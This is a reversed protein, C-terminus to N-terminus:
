SGPSSGAASLAEQRKTDAEALARDNEDGTPLYAAQAMAITVLLVTLLNLGLSYFHWRVFTARAAKAAHVDDTRPPSHSVMADFTQNRPERLENVKRELWGGLAVTALAALLIGARLRHVRAAGARRWALATAGALLGCVAQIGFYWQFLPELAVGAARTGQEKRLPEPFADRDPSPGDYAKWLPFWAERPAEAAVRGFTNFLNVGVVFSFFVTTGFWLGLALVHVIKSFRLLTPTEQLRNESGRLLRGVNTRHRVFILAAAVLCFLTVVWHEGSWPQPTLVLRFFCLVAAAALSALSVYRSALVIALWSLLAAAAPGPLLVGVAGAATAVGKGGRFHLYVPFLHGLLAAVAAAVPLSDAPLDLEHASAWISAFLAPLAGKAFDLLFVLIGFPRGLVRGVNTAGINGSGKQLIDVGRGRAVLYGFPIAGVLYSILLTLGLALATM